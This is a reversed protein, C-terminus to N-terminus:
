ENGLDILNNIIHRARMTSGRRASIHDFLWALKALAAVNTSAMLERTLRHIILKLVYDSSFTQGLPQLKIGTAREYNRHTEGMPPLRGRLGDIFSPYFPDLFSEGDTTTIFTEDLSADPPLVPDILFRSYKARESELYHARVLAPGFVIDADHVLDGVTIGGRVWFGASALAIQTLAMSQLTAAFQDSNYPVSFVVNDSFATFHAGEIKETVNLVSPSFMRVLGALRAIRRPDNGADIIESRWGLVDYFVVIRCEYALEGFQLESDNIIM